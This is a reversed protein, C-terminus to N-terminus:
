KIEKVFDDLKEKLIGKFNDDSLKTKMAADKDDRKDEPIAYAISFAKCVNLKKGYDSKLNSFIKGYGLKEDKREDPIGCCTICSLSKINKINKKIFKDVPSAIKGVWIPGCAIVEDYKSPDNKLKALRPGLGILSGLMMLPVSKMKPQLREIDCKLTKAIKRALYDNNGSKSYYYIITKKM